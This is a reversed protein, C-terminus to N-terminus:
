IPKPVETPRGNVWSYGETLKMRLIRFRATGIWEESLLVQTEDNWCGNLTHESANDIGTRTQMMVDIYKWPVPLTTGDLISLKTRHADHHRCIFDGSMSWVYKVTKESFFADEEKEEQELNGMDHM